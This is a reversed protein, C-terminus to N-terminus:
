LAALVCQVSAYDDPLGRRLAVYSKGDSGTQRIEDWVGQLQGDVATAEEGARLEGQGLLARHRRALALMTKRLAAERELLPAPIGPGGRVWTTALLDIFARGRARESWEFARVEDGAQSDLVILAKYPSLKDGFVTIKWEEPLHQDRLREVTSVALILATRAPGHEGREQHVLARGFHARWLTEPTRWVAALEAAREFFRSALDLRGGARHGEALYLYHVAERHRLNGTSSILLAAELCVLGEDAHGLEVLTSGLQLDLESELDRDSQDDLESLGTRYIAVAEEVRGRGREVNGLGTLNIVLGLRNGLERDLAIAREFAKQARGLDGIRTFAIGRNSELRALESRADGSVPGLHELMEGAAALLALGRDLEGVGVCLMALERRYGAPFYSPLEARGADAPELGARYCDIARDYDGLLGLAIGKGRWALAVIADRTEAPPLDGAALIALDAVAGAEDVFGESTLVSLHEVLTRIFPVDVGGRERLAALQRRYEEFPIFRHAAAPHTGMLSVDRRVVDAPLYHRVTTRPAGALYGGGDDRFVRVAFRHPGWQPGDDWLGAWVVIEDVGDADVDKLEAFGQYFVEDPFLGRLATGNWQFVYLKLYAGSGAQWWTVIETVGDRNIDMLRLNRFGDGLTVLPVVRNGGEAPDILCCIGVDWVGPVGAAFCTEEQGDSDLDARVVKFVCLADGSEPWVSRAIQLIEDVNTVREM